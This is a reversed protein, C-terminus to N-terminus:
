AAPFWLTDKQIDNLLQSKMQVLIRHKKNKAVAESSYGLVHSIESMRRKELVMDMLKKDKPCMNDIYDFIMERKKAKQIDGQAWGYDREEWGYQLKEDNWDVSFNQKSVWHTYINRSYIKWMRVLEDAPFFLGNTKKWLEMSSEQVIDEADQWALRSYKGLLWRIVENRRIGMVSEFTVVSSQNNKRM